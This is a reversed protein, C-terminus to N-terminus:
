IIDQVRSSCNQGLYKSNNINTNNWEAHFMEVVPVFWYGFVLICFSHSTFKIDYFSLHKPFLKTM